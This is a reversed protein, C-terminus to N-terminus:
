DLSKSTVPLAMQAIAWLGLVRGTSLARVESCIASQSSSKLSATRAELSSSPNLVLGSAKEGLLNGQQDRPLDLQPSSIPAKNLAGLKHGGNKTHTQNKHDRLTARAQARCVRTCFEGTGMNM